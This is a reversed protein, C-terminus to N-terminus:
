GAASWTGDSNRDYGTATARHARKETVVARNGRTKVEAGPRRGMAQIQATTFKQRTPRDNYKSSGISGASGTDSLIRGFFGM